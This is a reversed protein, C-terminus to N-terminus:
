ASLKFGGLNNKRGETLIGNSLLMLNINNIFLSFWPFPKLYTLTPYRQSISIFYFDIQISLSKQFLLNEDDKMKTKVKSRLLVRCLKDGTLKNNLM